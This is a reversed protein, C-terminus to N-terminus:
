PLLCIARYLSHTDSPHDSLHKQRGAMQTHVRRISLGQEASSLGIFGHSAVNQRIAVGHTLQNYDLSVFTMDSYM